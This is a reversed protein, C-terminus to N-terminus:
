VTSLLERDLSERVDYYEMPVEEGAFTLHRPLEVPTFLHTGISDPQQRSPSSCATLFSFLFFPFISILKLFRPFIEIKM